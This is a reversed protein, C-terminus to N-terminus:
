GKACLILAKNKDNESLKNLFFWANKAKKCLTVLDFM